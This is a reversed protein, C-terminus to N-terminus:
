YNLIAKECDGADMYAEALSDYVNASNPYLEVNLVFIKIAESYYKNKLFEYGLNNLFGENSTSPFEKQIKRCEDAMDNYGKIVLSKAIINYLHQNIPVKYGTSKKESISLAKDFSRLAEDMKHIKAYAIGKVGGGEFVLHEYPLQRDIM